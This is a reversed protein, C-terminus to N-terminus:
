KYLSRSLVLLQEGKSDGWGLGVVGEYFVVQVHLRGPGQGVLCCSQPGALDRPLEGAVAQLEPVVHEAGVDARQSQQGVHVARALLRSQPLMRAVRAVGPVLLGDVDPTRALVEPHTPDRRCYVYHKVDVSVM